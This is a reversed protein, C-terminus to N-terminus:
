RKELIGDARLIEELFAPDLSAEYRKKAHARGQSFREILVNNLLYRFKQGAM